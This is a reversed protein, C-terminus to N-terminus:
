HVMGPVKKKEKLSKVRRGQSMREAVVLEPVKQLADLELSSRREMIEEM